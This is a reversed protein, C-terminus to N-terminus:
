MADDERFSHGLGRNDYCKDSTVVVIAGVGPMRRVADLLHVTGMVNTAFTEVPEAYSVRVLSQAALHLVIDPDAERLAAELEAINRVDGLHHDIEAALGAAVFLGRETEPALAFGTVHAGLTRLLLVMWAGKFGTHGTLFVRRGRWFSRDIVVSEVEANWEGM